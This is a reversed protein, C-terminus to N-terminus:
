VHTGYNDEKHEADRKNRYSYGMLLLEMTQFFHEQFSINFHRFNNERNIREIVPSRESFQFVGVAIFFLQNIFNSGDGKKFVPFLTEFVSGSKEILAHMATKFELAVDYAINKELVINLISLLRLIEPQKNVIIKVISIIEESTLATKERVTDKLELIMEESLQGMLRKFLCLFLEEKTSFYLYVTGKTISAEHGIANMSIEGYSLDKFLRLAADLISNYRREKEDPTIARVKVKL